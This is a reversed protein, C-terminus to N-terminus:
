QMKAERLTDELEVFVMKQALVYDIGKLTGPPLYSIKEKELIRRFFVDFHIEGFGESMM